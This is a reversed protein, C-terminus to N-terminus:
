FSKHEFDPIIGLEFMEHIVICINHCLAKLLIENIQAVENKGMVSDGFKSKMM